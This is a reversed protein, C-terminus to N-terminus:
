PSSPGPPNRTRTRDPDVPDPPISREVAGDTGHIFLEVRRARSAKRGWSIAQAKTPFSRSARLSGCRRVSWGGYMSPLVQLYNRSPM